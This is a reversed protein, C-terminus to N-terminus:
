IIQLIHLVAGWHLQKYKYYWYCIKEGNVTHQIIWETENMYSENQEWRNEMVGWIRSGWVKKESYVWKKVKRKHIRRKAGKELHIRRSLPHRYHHLGKHLDGPYQHHFEAPLHLLLTLVWDPAPSVAWSVPFCRKEESLALGVCDATVPFVPMAYLWKEQLWPDYHAVAFM